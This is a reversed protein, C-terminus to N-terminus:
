RPVWGAEAFFRERALVGLMARKHPFDFEKVLAYGCRALSTLMKQNDARPEIVVRQTRCDDLFLWHAVSPMWAAVWPRGRFAPEGVLVHWGRDHDAADCFPAIRDEKAWYAEIYSFPEGDFCGILGQTHPDAANAGLYARHHDLSGAEQWFHDVVPDNMWRHFTALDDELHVTRLSFTRGLEPIHRRYLVGHPKPPRRPHRRGQTLTYQLPAAEAVVPRWLRPLQWLAQRSVALTGHPLREIHGSALLPSTAALPAAVTLRDHQPHQAFATELVALLEAECTSRGHGELRLEAPNGDRLTWRGREMHDVILSSGDQMVQLALGDPHSCFPQPNM